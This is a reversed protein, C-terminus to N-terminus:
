YYTQMASPLHEEKPPTDYDFKLDPEFFDVKIAKAM